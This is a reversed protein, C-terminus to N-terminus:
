GNRVVEVVQNGARVTVRRRKMTGKRANDKKETGM